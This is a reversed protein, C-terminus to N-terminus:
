QALYLMNGRVEGSGSQQAKRKIDEEKKALEREKAALLLEKTKNKEAQFM